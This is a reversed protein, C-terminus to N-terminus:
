CLLDIEAKARCRHSFHAPKQKKWMV